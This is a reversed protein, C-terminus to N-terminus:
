ALYVKGRRGIGKREEEERKEREELRGDNLGIRRSEIGGLVRGGARAGACGALDRKTPVLRGGVISGRGGRESAGGVERFRNTGDVFGGIYLLVIQKKKHKKKKGKGSKKERKM